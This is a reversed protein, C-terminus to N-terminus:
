RGDMVMETISICASDMSLWVWIEYLGRVCRRRRWAWERSLVDLKVYGKRNETERLWKM